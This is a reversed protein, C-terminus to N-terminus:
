QPSYPATTYRKVGNENYYTKFAISNFEGGRDTRFALLKVGRESEALAKVKRFFKFAEEKTRLMEVWM